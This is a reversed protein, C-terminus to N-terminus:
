GNIKVWAVKLDSTARVFWVVSAYATGVKSVGQIYGDANEVCWVQNRFLGWETQWPHYRM